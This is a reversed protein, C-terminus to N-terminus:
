CVKEAHYFITNLLKGDYLHSHFGANVEVTQMNSLKPHKRPLTYQSCKQSVMNEVESNRDYATCNNKHPLHIM